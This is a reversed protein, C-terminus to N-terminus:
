KGLDSLLENIMKNEFGKSLLFDQIKRKKVFINKESKLTKIKQEALQNFTKQYDRDDIEKLAKNICYDSVQRMKLAQKIKMKGWKKMRFKGGAFLVAFREENLFNEEILSSIIFDIEKKSLGFSFLKDRVEAHCREQYSCYQKIKPISQGPTFNQIEM